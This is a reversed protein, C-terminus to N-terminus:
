YTINGKAVKNLGVIQECSLEVKGEYMLEKVALLDDFEVEPVVVM